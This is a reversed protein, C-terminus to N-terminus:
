CIDLLRETQRRIDHGMEITIGLFLLTKSDTMDHPSPGDKLSDLYQHYYRNTEEVLLFEVHIRLFSFTFQVESVVSPQKPGYYISTQCCYLYPSVFLTRFLPNEKTNVEDSIGFFNHFNGPYFYIRRHSGSPKHHVPSSVVGLKVFLSLNYQLFATHLLLYYKEM